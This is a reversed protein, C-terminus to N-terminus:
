ELKLLEELDVLHLKEKEAEAKLEDTFGAKSFFWYCPQVGDEPIATTKVYLADNLTMVNENFWCRGALINKKVADTAM